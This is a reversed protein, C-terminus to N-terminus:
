HKAYVSVVCGGVVIVVLVAAVAIIIWTHWREGGCGNSVDLKSKLPNSNNLNDAFDNSISEVNESVRPKSNKKNNSVLSVSYPHHKKPEKIGVSNNRDNIEKSVVDIQNRNNSEKNLTVNDSMILPIHKMKPKICSRLRYSQIKTHLSDEM